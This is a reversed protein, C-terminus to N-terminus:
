QKVILDLYKKPTVKKMEQALVQIQFYASGSDRLTLFNKLSRLNITYVLDVKWLDNVIGKFADGVNRKKKGSELANFVSEFYFMDPYKLQNNNIIDLSSKSVATEMFEEHGLKNYQYLLKNFIDNIQLTNYEIDTTVFIDLELM